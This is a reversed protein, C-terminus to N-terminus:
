LVDLITYARRENTESKDDAFIVNSFLPRLVNANEWDQLKSAGKRVSTYNREILGHSNSIWSDM